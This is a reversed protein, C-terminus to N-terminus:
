CEASCPLAPPGAGLVDVHRYNANTGDIAMASYQLRVRKGVIPESVADVEVNWRSDALDLTLPKSLPLSALQESQIMDFRMAGIVERANALELRALGNIRAQEQTQRVHVAFRGVTAATIGLLMLSIVVEMTTIGPRDTTGFRMCRRHFRAPQSQKM